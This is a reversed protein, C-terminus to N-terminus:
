KVGGEDDMTAAAHVTREYSTNLGIILWTLLSEEVGDGLRVYQMFPDAEAADVGLIYDEENSTPQQQNQAYPELLEIKDRLGQAFYMQGVHAATLDM